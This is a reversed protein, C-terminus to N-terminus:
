KGDESTQKARFYDVTRRLGDELTIEPQWGLEEAAKSADLYIKFTEGAKAPGHVADLPYDMIEKLQDFLQNVTVGKNWGFNYTQGAGKELVLLNARALDTVCVYDREQEGNGNIVAQEGRLMQGTFIAIVGAEGLPDQRPGYVNPYRLVSYNLGYLQNYM